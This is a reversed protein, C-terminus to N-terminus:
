GRSSNLVGANHILKQMDGEQLIAYGKLGHVLLLVILVLLVLVLLRVIINYLYIERHKPNYKHTIINTLFLINFEFLWDLVHM